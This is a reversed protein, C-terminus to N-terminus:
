PVIAFVRAPFGSGGKPKPFTAVVIAGAEPVKDLNTLLEIQYHDTGLIYTELSYDDKSTAIGPDTDTTEHGSATIKRKEYLYKLVEKSWGPYHAVGKTDENRMAKADPWRKSWDTRMAVFAGEPISGHRHEWDRVDDMSITYDPNRAAKEHVDIVVLALIMEQPDIQDITRKGKAFHAPPDCHTGWQGVHTFQQAFFGKGMTGKRGDYWYLTERKEDPFGPWHPIGPEFAHTLDVFQKSKIVALADALTPQPSSSTHQRIKEGGLAMAAVSVAMLLLVIGLCGVRSPLGRQAAVAEVADKAEKLGVGTRERYVKIAEIKKGAELLRVIEAEMSSDVPERTPLSEGRELAEVADKAEKLGVGTRERYLKIAGIKKGGQLLLVIENGFASDVPEKTPLPEGRELAEVTEKAVALGAGTVERYRKIAEIKRGEALLALLEALVSESENSM